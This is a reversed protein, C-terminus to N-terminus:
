LKAVLEELGLIKLTEPTPKGTRADWGRMEYYADKLMELTDRDIVMGQAPGDPLPDHMLRGPLTDDM